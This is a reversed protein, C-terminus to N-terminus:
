LSSKVTFHERKLPKIITKLWKGIYIPQVPDAFWPLSTLGSQHCRAATRLSISVLDSTLLIVFIFPVTYFLVVSKRFVLRIVNKKLHLVYLKNTACTHTEIHCSKSCASEKAHRNITSLKNKITLLKNKSSVLVCIAAKQCNTGM